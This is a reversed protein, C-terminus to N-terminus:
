VEEVEEVFEEKESFEIRRGQLNELAAAVTLFVLDQERLEVDGITPWDLLEWRARRFTTRVNGNMGVFRLEVNPGAFRRLQTKFDRLMYVATVDVYTVATFDLVVVRIPPLSNDQMGVQKRLKAIRREGSVSWNREEKQEQASKAASRHYTQITEFIESKVRNANPFLIAETFSFLKVDNPVVYPMTVPVPPSARGNSSIVVRAFATHVLSYVISFAVAVGIGYEASVFLTIWFALMSAAFDTM